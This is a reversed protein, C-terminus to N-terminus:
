QRLYARAQIRFLEAYLGGAALLEAHSGREVIRGGDVVVILDAMRVTSFRHSVLVTVGGTGTAAVRAAAAYREFLAHERGPDLAATPEDLVLLLPRARMMARALALLQWQGGSLEVGGEFSPGVPTALGDRLTAITAEAGAARVAGLVTAEDDIRPVDGVGVVERAVLELRAPDQFAGSARARWEDVPLRRLDVGDVLVRGDDPEYLRLLLKVITSKGAGNEGVLAITSGAPLLLDVARLAPAEAGPYRFTVGDLRIGEHLRAPVPVPDSPRLRAEAGSVEDTLWALRRIARLTSLLRDIGDIVGNIQSAVRKVLGVALVVDGPTLDGRAGLVAAGAIAALQSATFVLGGALDWSHARVQAPEEVGIVREAAQRHRDLVVPALRHLRLEAAAKPERVLEELRLTLRHDEAAIQSAAASIRETRAAAAVLVIGGVVVLLLAPHVSALLVVSALAAAWTSLNGAVAYVVDGLAFRKERVLQLQDLLEPREHHEVGPLRTSLDIVRSELLMATRERLDTITDAWSCVQRGAMAAAVLLAGRVALGVDGATAGDVIVKGGYIAAVQGLSVVLQTGIGAVTLWRGGQWATVALLRLARGAPADGPRRATM